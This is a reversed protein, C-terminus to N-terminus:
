FQLFFHCHLDKHSTKDIAMEDPEASNYMKIHSSPNVMEAQLGFYKKQSCHLDQHSPEYHAMENPDVSNAM